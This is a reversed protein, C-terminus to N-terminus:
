AFDAIDRARTKVEGEGKEWVLSRWYLVNEVDSNEERVDVGMEVFGEWEGLELAM